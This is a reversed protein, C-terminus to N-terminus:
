RSPPARPRSCGSSRAEHGPRQADLASRPRTGVGITRRGRSVDAHATQDRRQGVKRGLEVGGQREVGGALAELGELAGHYRARPMTMAPAISLRCRGRDGSAAHRADVEGGSHRRRLGGRVGVQAKAATRARPRAGDLGLHNSRPAAADTGSRSRVASRSDVRARGEVVERPRLRRGAGRASPCFGCRRPSPWTRWSRTGFSRAPWGLHQWFTLAPLFWSPSTCSATAAGPPRTSSTRTACPPGPHDVRHTARRADPDLAPGRMVRRSSESVARPRVKSPMPALHQARLCPLTAARSRSRREGEPLTEDLAVQRRFFRLAPRVTESRRPFSCRVQM